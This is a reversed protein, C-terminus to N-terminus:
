MCHVEPHEASQINTQGPPKQCVHPQQPGSVTSFLLVFIDTASFLAAVNWYHIWMFDWLLHLTCSFWMLWWSKNSKKKASDPDRLLPQNISETILVCHPQHCHKLARWVVKQQVNKYIVNFTVAPSQQGVSVDLVKKTYTTAHLLSFLFVPFISVPFHTLSWCFWLVM